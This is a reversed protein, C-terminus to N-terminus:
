IGLIEFDNETLRVSASACVYVIERLTHKLHHIQNELFCETRATYM